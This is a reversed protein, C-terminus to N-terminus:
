AKKRRKMYWVVGWAAAALGIWVPIFVGLWIIVNALGHGFGVLGNWASSAVNGASWGSIVTIYDTRILSVEHGKDDTVTLKVTYKGDNRYAHAFAAETSTFGDGLEWKYSYPVFGGVVTASFFTEEREKIVRQNATFELNLKSQQLSVDILSTSSTRELYQMRGKTQEIQGRVNTLERQVALIDEVKEAKALIARLQTETAELNKLKSSLDTYEETVDRSNTTENTIDAALVRLSRIAEDFSGSPVRISISGYLRERDQWVNSSVVIGKLRGALASIQDISSAVDDVVLAMSGTRVIMQDTVSIAAATGSGGQSESGFVDSKGIVTPPMPAPAPYPAPAPTSPVTPAGAIQSKDRTASPSCAALLAVSLALMIVLLKKM